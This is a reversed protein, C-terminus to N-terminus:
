NMFYIIRIIEAGVDVGGTAWPHIIESPDNQRRLQEPRNSRYELEITPCAKLCREGYEQRLGPWVRHGKSTYVELWSAISEAGHPLACQYVNVKLGPVARPRFCPSFFPYIDKKGKCQVFLSCLKWTLRVTLVPIISGRGLVQSIGERRYPPSLTTDYQPFRSGWGRAEPM